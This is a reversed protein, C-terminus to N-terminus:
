KMHNVIISSIQEHSYEKDDIKVYPKGNKNIVEYNAMNIMKQVDTDNWDAGMFRKIFSITNKPNMIQGRKAPDGVKREDGKIFVVSPTTKKGENNEIVKAKGYYSKQLTANLDYIKM